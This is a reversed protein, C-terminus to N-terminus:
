ATELVTATGVISVIYVLKASQEVMLLIADYGQSESLSTIFVMCMNHWPRLPIFLLQFLGGENEHSALNVQCKM